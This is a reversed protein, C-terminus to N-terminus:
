RFQSIMVVNRHVMGRACALYRGDRSWAYAFIQEEQFDTLKSSTGDDLSYLWVNASHDKPDLYSLARGSPMWRVSPWPYTNPLDLMQIPAGGATPLLAVKLPSLIEKHYLCAVLKGDPSIVPFDSFKDTLATEAGGERLSTKVIVRKSNRESSYVVWEGDPSCNPKVDHKGGSLEMLNGGDLEMRWIHSPGSRSSAFVVYKGDTSVSPFHNNDDSDATLQRPHDGDANVMWLNQRGNALSTFVIKGDPTWDLGRAGNQSIPDNTILLANRPNKVPVVWLNSNIEAHVTVLRTSDPTLNLNRYSNLDNTLKHIKGDPYDVLWLQDNTGGSRLRGVAALMEGGKLWAVRMLWAWKTNGVAHETGDTARLAILRFHFDPTPIMKAVAIWKGDPSWAPGDVSYTEPFKCVAIKREGAGNTESIMLASEGVTQDERVFAIQKGDPSFSIASDVGALLPQPEGGLISIRYLTHRSEQGRRQSYYIFNGDPSFALGRYRFGAEPVLQTERNTTLQKIWLSHYGGVFTTTSIYALFQGDASIAAEFAKGSNTLRRIQMEHFSDAATRRERMRHIGLMAVAVFALLSLAIALIRGRKRGISQETDSPRAAKDGTAATKSTPGSGPQGDDEAIQNVPAVFRYGRKPVTEIFREGNEGLVKRLISINNALNAEEVVTDPWVLAMLEEKELLHGHREVLVRLLDFVKPQLLVVQGDRLLLHEGTDLRYSGFEYIHNPQHSM